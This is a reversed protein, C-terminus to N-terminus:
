GCYQYSNIINPEIINKVDNEIESHWSYIYKDMSLGTRIYHDYLIKNNNIWYECDYKNMSFKKIATKSSNLRIIM